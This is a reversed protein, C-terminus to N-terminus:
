AARRKAVRAWITHAVAVTSLLLLAPYILLLDVRINCDGTCLVRMLMLYEYGAYGAWAASAVIATWSRGWRWLFVLSGAIVLALWPHMTLSAGIAAFAMNM